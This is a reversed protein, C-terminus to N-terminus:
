RIPMQNRCYNEEYISSLRSSVKGLLIGVRGNFSTNSKGNNDWVFNRYENLGASLNLLESAEHYNENIIENASEGNYLIDNEEYTWEEDKSPKFRLSDDLIKHTRKGKARTGGRIQPTNESIKRISWGMM